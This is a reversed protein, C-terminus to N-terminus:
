AAKRVQDVVFMKFENDFAWLSNLRGETAKDFPIANMEEIVKKWWLPKCVQLFDSRHANKGLYYLKAVKRFAATEDRLHWKLRLRDRIPNNPLKAPVLATLGPLKDRFKEGHRRFFLELMAHYFSKVAYYHHVCDNAEVVKRGELMFSLAIQEITFLKRGHHAWEDILSISGEMIDANSRTMGCIGSNYLKLSPSPTKNKATLEEAFAHYGPRRSGKAWTWEFEDMLFQDENVRQFLVSPDKLFVTDTDVFITKDALKVGAQIACAKQRHHYDGNGMWTKRTEDDLTIVTVPWGNFEEPQDTMVTISFSSPNKRHRLASLISFKAEQRYVTKGGYLLYLLQNSLMFRLGTADMVHKQIDNHWVRTSCEFTIAMADMLTAIPDKAEYLRRRM